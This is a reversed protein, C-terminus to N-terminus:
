AKMLDKITILGGAGSGQVESLDLGLDEAKRRAANTAKPGEDGGAAGATAGEVTEKTAQVAGNATQEAQQTAEEAADTAGRVAEGAAGTTQKGTKGVSDTVDKVTVLGGSGTGEIKSLDVGLEEAKSRVMNSAKPGDESGDGMNKVAEIVDSVIIRGNAGSGEVETLDVGLEMAERRAADSADIEGQKGLQEPDLDAVNKRARDLAEQVAAFNNMLEGFLMQFAEDDGGPIQAPLEEMRSRSEEVDQKLAEVSNDFYDQALKMTQQQVIRRSEQIGQNLKELAENTREEAM